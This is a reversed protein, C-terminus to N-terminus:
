AVAEPCSGMWPDGRVVRGERAIRAAHDLALRLTGHGTVNSWPGTWPWCEDPTGRVVRAEFDDATFVPASRPFQFGFARAETWTPLSM